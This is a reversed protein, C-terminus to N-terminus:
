SPQPEGLSGPQPLNRILDRWTSARAHLSLVSICNSEAAIPYVLKASSGPKVLTKYALVRSRTADCNTGPGGPAPTIELRILTLARSAERNTIQVSHKGPGAIEFHTAQEALAVDVAEGFEKELKALQDAKYARFKQDCAYRVQRAAVDSSVGKMGNIICDNLDFANAPQASLVSIGVVALCTLLNM